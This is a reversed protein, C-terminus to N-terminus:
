PAPKGAAGQAPAPLPKTPVTGPASEASEKRPISAASSRHADSGASAASARHSGAAPAPAPAPAPAAAAPPAAPATALASAKQKSLAALWEADERESATMEDWLLGRLQDASLKAADFEWDFRSGAAPEEAADHLAVLYPHHLLEQASARKIPDFVLMKSMFDCGEADSGLSPVLEGIPKGPRPQLARVYKAAEHHKLFATDEDTPVGLLDCILHLQHLYDKGPFLPKRNMLEAFICGVSWIDVVPTYQTCMLLLEPPRYWRTIVYDTLEQMCDGANYGRALGFDCIKLDCNINVLINAPKLDRHMVNASHIYKLGRIIQYVFYKYHDENMQQRSKIVNNLDTDLMETVLYIDKFSDRPDRPRLLHKIQLLNDHRFFKLLKIERLVRKCDGLDRFINLCKKIAVRAGSKHQRTDRTDVAACVFGYAGFGLVKTLNYRDDVDFPQGNIMFRKRGDGLSVAPTIEFKSKAM